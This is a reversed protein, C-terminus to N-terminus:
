IEEASCPPDVVFVRNDVKMIVEVYHELNAEAKEKTAFPGVLSQTEDAFYWGDEHLEQDKIFWIDKGEQSIM